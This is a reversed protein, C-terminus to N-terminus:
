SYPRAGAKASIAAGDAAPNENKQPRGSYRLDQMVAWIFSWSRIFYRGFMRHPEQGFRWLWEFGSRQIWAPARSKTGVFFDLGAGAALIYCDGIRDRNEHTWIESKPAGVGIFLHTTGHKRVRDALMKSYGDDREFGFPPVECALATAPFGRATLYALLKRGTPESNAIFFCRHRDPSLTRMLDDFLDAGTVRGPLRAGRLRAYLYVPMGDATAVWAGEYATKLKSNGLTEVIHDVNATFVPRPGAGQPIAERAITRALESRSLATFDIGFLRSM